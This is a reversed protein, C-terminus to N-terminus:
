QLEDNGLDPDKFVTQEVKIQGVRQFVRLAAQEAHDRARQLGPPLFVQYVTGSKHEVWIQSGWRASPRENVVLSISAVEDLERWARVFSQYFAQGVGTMTHDIVIGDLSEVQGPPELPPGNELNGEDIAQVGGAALLWALALLQRLRPRDLPSMPMTDRVPTRTRWCGPQGTM